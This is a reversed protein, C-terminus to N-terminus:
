AQDRYPNNQEADLIAQIVGGMIPLPIGVTARGAIVAQFISSGTVAQVMGIGGEVVSGAIRTASTASTVIRPWLVSAQASIWPWAITRAYAISFSIPGFIEDVITRGMSRAGGGWRSLTSGLRM